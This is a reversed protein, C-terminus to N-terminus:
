VKLLLNGDNIQTDGLFDFFFISLALTHSLSSYAFYSSQIYWPIPPQENWHINIKEGDVMHCVKYFNWKYYIYQVFFFKSKSKTVFLPSTLKAENLQSWNILATTTYMAIPTDRDLLLNRSCAGSIYLMVCELLCVVNAMCGDSLWNNWVNTLSPKYVDTDITLSVSGNLNM